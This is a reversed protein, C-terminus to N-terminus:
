SENPTTHWPVLRVRLRRRALKPQHRPDARRLGFVTVSQTAVDIECRVLRGAWHPAVRLRQACLRVAGLEDLRRLAIIPIAAPKAQPNQWARRLASAQGRRHRQRQAYAEIFAASRRRLQALNRHRWRHWVREQWRRNYAEIMGQFGLLAPPTFVPVVGLCQCWHVLRGFYDRQVHAGTFITDNDFQVYRPCGRERWRRELAERVEQSSIREAPHSDALGDWLGLINLVEIRGRRALRLGEVVDASDLEALGAAVEPLYWGKPPAPRRWRERGSVGWKSLWRAITRESPALLGQGLLWRHIAAPGYEGLADRDKLYSRGRRISQLVAVSSRQPNHHARHSRDAWVVNTLPKGRARKVWLAVTSVAVQWRSAARRYSMGARVAQVM